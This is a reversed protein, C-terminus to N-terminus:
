NLEKRLANAVSEVCRTELVRMAETSKAVVTETGDEARWVIKLERQTRQLAPPRPYDWVNEKERPEAETTM